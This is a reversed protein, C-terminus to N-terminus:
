YRAWGRAGAPRQPHTAVLELGCGSRAPPRIVYRTLDYLTVTRPTLMPSRNRGGRTAHGASTATCTRSVLWPPTEDARIRGRERERCTRLTRASAGRVAAVTSAMPVASRRDGHSRRAVLTPADCGKSPTAPAVAAAATSARRSRGGSDARELGVAPVVVPGDVM